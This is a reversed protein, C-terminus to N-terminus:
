RTRRLRALDRDGAVFLPLLDVMETEPLRDIVLEGSKRHISFKGDPHIRLVCQRQRCIARMTARSGGLLGTM